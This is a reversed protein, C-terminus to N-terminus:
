ARERRFPGIVEWVAYQNVVDFAEPRFVSETPQTYEALSGDAKLREVIERPLRLKLVALVGSHRTGWSLAYELSGQVDNPDIRVTCFSGPQYSWVERLPARRESLGHQAIDRASTVTTGHAFEVYEGESSTAGAGQSLDRDAAM